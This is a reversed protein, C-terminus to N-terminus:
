ERIQLNGDEDYYVPDINPTDVFPRKSDRNYKNGAGLPVWGPMQKKPIHKDSVFSALRNYSETAMLKSEQSLQKGFGPAIMKALNLYIAMNAALPVSTLTDMNATDIDAALPYQVDIEQGSWEAIMSELKVLADQLQYTELGYEDDAMGIESFAQLVFQRKTWGM